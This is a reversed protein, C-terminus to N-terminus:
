GSRGGSGAKSNLCRHWPMETESYFFELVDAIDRETRFWISVESTRREPEETIIALERIEAHM